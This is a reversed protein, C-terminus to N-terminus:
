GKWVALRCTSGDLLASHYQGCAVVKADTADLAELSADSIAAAEASVHAPATSSLDPIHTPLAVTSRLRVVESEKCWAGKSLVITATDLEPKDKDKTDASLAPKPAASKEDPKPPEVITPKAVSPSHSFTKGLGLEGHEFRGFAFLKHVM